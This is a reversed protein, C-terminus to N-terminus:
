TAVRPSRWVGFLRRTGGRPRRSGKRGENAPRRNANSGKAPTASTATPTACSSAAVAGSDVEPRDEIHASALGLHDELLRAVVTAQDRDPLGRLLAVKGGGNLVVNVAFRPSRPPSGGSTVAECVVRGIQSSALARAGMWPVGHRVSLGLPTTKVVTQQARDLIPRLLVVGAGCLISALFLRLLSGLFSGSLIWPFLSLWFQAVLFFLAPSTHGESSEWRHRVVLGAPRRHARRYGAARGEQGALETVEISARRVPMEPAPIPANVPPAPLAFAHACARCRAIKTYPNVDGSVVPARCRACVLSM